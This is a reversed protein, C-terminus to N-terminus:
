PIELSRGLSRRLVQHRQHRDCGREHIEVPEFLGFDAIAGDKLVSGGM